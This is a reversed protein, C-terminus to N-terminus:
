ALADLVTKLQAATANALRDLLPRMLPGLFRAPGSFQFEATYEVVSGTPSPTVRITDTSTTTANRGVVVFEPETASVVTYELSVTRGAFRSVNHYITGPGGDGSARHCSVTGSDWESANSFDVLYPFVIDAPTRTSVTRQLTIM